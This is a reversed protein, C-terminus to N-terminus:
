VKQLHIFTKKAKSILFDTKLLNAKIFDLKKSKVSKAVTSLNKNYKSIGDNTDKTSANNSIIQNKVKINQTKYDIIPLIIILPAVIKSLNKIFRIHFNAFYLFVLIDKM